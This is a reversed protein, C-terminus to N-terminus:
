RAHDNRGKRDREAALYDELPDHPAVVKEICEIAYRAERQQRERAGNRHDPHFFIEPKLGDKPLRGLHGAKVAAMLERRVTGPIRGRVVLTAQVLIREVNPGFASSYRSAPMTM